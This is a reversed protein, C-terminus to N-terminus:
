EDDRDPQLDRARRRRVGVRRRLDDEYANFAAEDQEPATLNSLLGVTGVLIGLGGVVGAAVALVEIRSPVAFGLALIAGSAGILGGGVGVVRLRTDERDRIDFALRATVSTPEVAPLLEVPSAVTAGNGLILVSTRAVNSPYGGPLFTVRRVPRHARFYALREPFPASRPPAPRLPVHACAAACVILVCALMGTRTARERQPRM